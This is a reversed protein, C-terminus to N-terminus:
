FGRLSVEGPPSQLTLVLLQPPWASEMLLLSIWGLGQEKPKAWPSKQGQNYVVGEVLASPQKRGWLLDVNENPEIGACM